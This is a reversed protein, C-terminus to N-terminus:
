HFSSYHYHAKKLFDICNLNGMKYSEILSDLQAKKMAYKKRMKKPEHTSNLLIYTSVQQDKVAQIFLIIHPHTTYFNKSFSSHFSECANTTRQSTVTDSAWQSPPFTSSDYIYNQLVYEVLEFVRKDAPMIPIVDLIFCEAVHDSPLLSMGFVLHLWQGIESNKDKYLTTLGLQTIKRYWSQSLHFRCGIVSINPWTCEAASRIAVEFDAVLFRPSFTYNLLSCKDVIKGFCTGYIEASKSPLLAWVLPIYHDNVCVHITFMQVFFKSAYEFTGDVFIKDSSCLTRLNRETGFVVIHSTPDNILLLNENQSSLVPVNELLTHVEELCTPLAPLISRRARYICQRINHVDHVNINGESEAVGTRILKIPREGINEIAKKKVSNCLKKQQLDSAQQHNHHVSSAPGDILVSATVDTYIRAACGRVTCRWAIGRSVERDKRYKFGDVVKLLKGRESLMSEM